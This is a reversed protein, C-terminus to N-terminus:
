KGGGQGTLKLFVDELNAPRLFCAHKPLGWGDLKHWLGEGDDSYLFLGDVIQLAEGGAQRVKDPLDPPVADPPLLVEIAFPPVLRDVLERPSGQALIVGEHMIVLRDCLQSAEEM